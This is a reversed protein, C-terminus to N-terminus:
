VGFQFGCHGCGFGGLKPVSDDGRLQDAGTGGKLSVFPVVNHGQQDVATCRATNADVAACRDGASVGAVDTVVYATGDFSLTVVHPTPDNADAPAVELEASVPVLPDTESIIRVSSPAAEAGAAWAFSGSVIAAIALLRAGRIRKQAVDRHAVMW